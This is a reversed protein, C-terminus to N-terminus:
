LSSPLLFKEIIDIHSQVIILKISQLLPYAMEEAHYIKQM